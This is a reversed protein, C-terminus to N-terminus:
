LYTLDNQQQIEVLHHDPPVKETQYLKAFGLLDNEKTMEKFCSREVWGM